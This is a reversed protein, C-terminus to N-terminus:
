FLLLLLNSCQFNANLEFGSSVGGCLKGYNDVARFV